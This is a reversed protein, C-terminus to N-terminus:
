RQSRQSHERGPHENIFPHHVALSRDAHGLQLYLRATPRVGLLRLTLRHNHGAKLRVPVTAGGETRHLAPVVPRRGHYDVIMRGDLWANCGADAAVMLWGDFDEGVRLGTAVVLDAVPRGELAGSLVVGRGWERCLLRRGGGSPTEMARAQKFVTAPDTAELVAARLAGGDDHPSCDLELPAVLTRRNTAKDFRNAMACVRDTLEGLTTPLGLGRLHESVVIGDSARRRHTEPIADFGGFLGLTAGATAATCDTDQGCSVALRLTRDFDGEGALLAWLTYGVNMVCDTFNHHALQRDLVAFTEPEALQDAPQGLLENVLSVFRSGAPIYRTSQKLADRLGLGGLALSQMAALLKEAYIGERHHDVCADCHALTAATAPDNPCLCAWIESRIAAGMGHGFWNGHLGSLPAAIGRRMNQVAVAYEDAHFAQHALWACQLSALVDDFGDRELADLWLLQLELDDNPVPTLDSTDPDIAIPGAAGEYPMGLAGGISKGVWCAGIRQRREIATSTALTM